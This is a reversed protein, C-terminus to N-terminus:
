DPHKTRESPLVRHLPTGGGLYDSPNAAMRETDAISPPAARTAMCNATRASVSLDDRVAVSEIPGSCDTLGSIDMV